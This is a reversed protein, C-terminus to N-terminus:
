RADNDGSKSMAFIAALVGACFSLAPGLGMAMCVLVVLCFVIFM